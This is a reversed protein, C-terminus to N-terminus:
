NVNTGYLVRLTRSGCAPVVSLHTEEEFVKVTITLHKYNHNKIANTFANFPALMLPDEAGGISLFVKANLEPNKSAFLNELQVMENNNWWLAPSNIGYRKFLYPKKLLCYGTFLGGLSHGSIGRDTTTKFHNDMYPIVEEELTKLFSDAGGSKMTGEPLGMLKSWLTDSQLNVSPTFDTYRSGIWNADTSSSDDIAVMIFDKVERGFELTGRTSNMPTFSVRGDLIYLVPYRLTDKQTYNKPLSVQLEYTKNNFTSKIFYKNSNSNQAFSNATSLLNSACFVISTITLNIQKM